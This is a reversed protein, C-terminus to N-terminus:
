EKKLSKTARAALRQARLESAAKSMVFIDYCPSTSSNCFKKYSFTKKIEKGCCACKIMTGVKAQKNARIQEIMRETTLVKIGDILMFGAETPESM